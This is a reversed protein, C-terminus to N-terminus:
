EIILEDLEWDEYKGSPLYRRIVIPIVRQKLEKLAIELSDTEGKLDVLLPAGMSLQLARAGIIRAKEYKTLYPLTLRKDSLIKKQLQNNNYFVHANSSFKIENNKEMENINGNEEKLPLEETSEATDFDFKQHEDGKM